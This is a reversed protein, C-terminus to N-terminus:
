SLENLLSAYRCQARSLLGWLTLFLYAMRQMSRRKTQQRGSWCTLRSDWEITLWDFIRNLTYRNLWASFLMALSAQHKNWKGRDLAMIYPAHLPPQLMSVIGYHRCGGVVVQLVLKLRCHGFLIRRRHKSVPWEPLSVTNPKARKM